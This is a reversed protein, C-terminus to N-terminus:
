QEGEEIREFLRQAFARQEGSMAQGNQVEYFEAFLEPGTKHAVAELRALRADGRTRANDYDLKMLNPYVSRLRAAADPVDQEDTLIIHLYDDTATGEYNARLTLEEYSGRIERLDRRPILPVTRVAVDGKAGLDVVTVSKVHDKESFSYKLPTGCYRLEPRAVSQAGHLHGLAVYDFGDFAAADVGDLGGVADESECRAAGTVFQHTVLVNRAAPDIGMQEVATRLADTYNEIQADPFFRRVDAPRIFPLLYFRVPGFEDALEIPSVAGGYVPSLHVGAGDMLRSGFAIREPSDHNGSIAFVDAGRRSLAYLFDDFLRVAEAGPVPRDYIDGALIVAQPREADIVGLIKSLIYEQDELMSFENVRKGLHLDSLHVIRM